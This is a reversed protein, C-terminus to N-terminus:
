VIIFDDMGDNIVTNRVLEDNRQTMQDLVKGNIIQMNNPVYIVPAWPRIDDHILQHTEM